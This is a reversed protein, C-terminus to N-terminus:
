EREKAQAAGEAPATGENRGTQVGALQAIRARLPAPGLVEVAPYAVLANRALDDEVAGRVEIVQLDQAAGNLPHEDVVHPNLERLWAPLAGAVSLTADTLTTGQALQELVMEKLDRTGPGHFDPATSTPQITVHAIRTMRFTRPANRTRDFGTLYLRDKHTVLGWPDIERRVPESTKTRRYDFTVTRTTAVARLIADLDQAGIETLDNYARLQPATQLDRQLGTAALKTWGSRQFGSLESGQGLQSAVALATAEEPTFHLEPLTYDDSQLRYGTGDSTAIAEIPVGAALLVQRDRHFLRKAADAARKEGEPTRAYGEVNAIVWEATLMSRGLREANLFAFTLNTQREIAYNRPAPASM